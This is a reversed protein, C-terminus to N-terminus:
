KEDQAHNKKKSRLYRVASDKCVVLAVLGILLIVVLVILYMIDQQCLAVLGGADRIEDLFGIGDAFASLIALLSLVAVGVSLKDEEQQRQLQEANDREQKRQDEQTELLEELFDVGATLSQIEERLRLNQKAFQYFDNQSQVQSVSTHVSKLLFTNIEAQIEKLKLNYVETSNLYDKADASLEYEIKESFHILSYLQYLLLIYIIFYDRRVDDSLNNELYQRNGENKYVYCGCGSNCVYWYADKFPQYVYNSVDASRLFSQNHGATLFSARDLLIQDHHVENIQRDVEKEFAFYNYLLARVSMKEGSQSERDKKNRIGQVMYFSLGCDLDKLQEMIWQQISFGEIEKYNIYAKGDTADSELRTLCFDIRKNNVKELVPIQCQTEFDGSLYVYKGFLTHIRHHVETLIENELAKEEKIQLVPQNEESYVRQNLITFNKKGVVRYVFDERKNLGFTQLLDEYAILQDATIETDKFDIEYWFLGIGTRFLYMGYDSIVAYRADDKKLKLWLHIFPAQKSKRWASGQKEKKGEANNVTQYIHRYVHRCAMRDPQWKDTVESVRRCVNDYAGEFYFPVIYRMMRDGAMQRGEKRGLEEM